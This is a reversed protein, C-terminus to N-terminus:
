VSRKRGISGLASGILVLVTCFVVVFPVVVVEAAVPQKPEAGIAIAVIQGVTAEVAAVAAGLAVAQSIQAGLRRLTFGLGLYVVLQILSAWAYPVGTLRSFVAEVADLVVIGICLALLLRTM